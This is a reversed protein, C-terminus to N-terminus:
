LLVKLGAKCLTKPMDPVGSILDPFSLLCVHVTIILVTCSGGGKIAFDIIRWIYAARLM